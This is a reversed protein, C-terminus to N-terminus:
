RQNREEQTLNYCNPCLNITHPEGDDEVITAAVDCFKLGEKWCQRHCRCKIEHWGASDSVASRVFRLEEKNEDMDVDMDNQQCPEYEQTDASEKRVVAKRKKQSGVASSVSSHDRLATRQDAVAGTDPLHLKVKLAKPELCRREMWFSVLLM